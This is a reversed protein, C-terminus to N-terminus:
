YFYFRINPNFHITIQHATDSAFKKRDVKESTCELKMM